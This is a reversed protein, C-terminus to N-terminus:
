GLARRIWASAAIGGPHLTPASSSKLLRLAGLGDQKFLHGKSCIMLNMANADAAGSIACVHVDVGFIEFKLPVGILAEVNMHNLALKLALPIGLVPAVIWNWFEVM